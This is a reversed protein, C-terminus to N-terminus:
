LIEVLLVLNTITDAADLNAMRVVIALGPPYVDDALPMLNAAAAGAAAVASASVLGRGWIHANTQGATFNNRAAIKAVVRQSADQIELWVSRTAVAVSATTTLEARLLRWPRDPSPILRTVGDTLTVVAHAIIQVTSNM